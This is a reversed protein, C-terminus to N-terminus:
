EGRYNANVQKLEGDMRAEKVRRVIDAVAM